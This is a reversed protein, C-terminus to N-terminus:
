NEKYYCLSKPTEQISFHKGYQLWKERGFFSSFAVLVPTKDSRSCLNSSMGSWTKSYTNIVLVMTDLYEVEIKRNRTRIKELKAM